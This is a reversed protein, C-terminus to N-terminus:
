HSEMLDVGESALLLILVGGGGEAGLHPTDSPIPAMSAEFTKQFERRYSGEQTGNHIRM